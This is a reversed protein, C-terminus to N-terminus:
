VAPGRPSATGETLTPEMSATPIKYPKVAWAEVAFVLGIAVVITLVLEFLGRVRRKVPM